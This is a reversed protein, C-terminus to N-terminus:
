ATVPRREAAVPGGPPVLLPRPLRGLAAVIRPEFQAGATARCEELAAEWSIASRYSRSATMVDLADALALIRAGEPIAAGALADPYGRGDWREHHGRVWATQEASLIEGAIDAGLAAHQKVQEYEAATLAAPKALVADPVGIKGVDHVLGAEHLLATREPPWGIVEAIGAALAAVRESHRQTHPDKADVARALARLAALAQSRELRRAREEASLVEVVAPSYRCSADRGHAKAWYLAGDALAYLEAAGSAHETDCVGASVTLGGGGPGRLRAIAARAREAGAFASAADTEPMLWAFEEGGVRAVVDGARVLTRLADAVDILVRDGAQHGHVDNIRKFHDLDLLM